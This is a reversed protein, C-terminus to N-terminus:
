SEHGEAKAIAQEVKNIIFARDGGWDHTVMWEADNLSKLADLLEPAAAILRANAKTETTLPANYIDVQGDCASVNVKSPNESTPPYYKWPAPTHESM